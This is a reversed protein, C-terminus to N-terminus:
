WPWERVGRFVCRYGISSRREGPERGFRASFRLQRPYSDGPCGRVSRYKGSTPGAPNERSLDKFYTESFWDSCWEATRGPMDFVGFDNAGFTGVDAATLMLSNLDRVGALNLKEGKIIDISGKFYAGDEIVIRGVRLDGVLKADKLIIAVTAEVNGQVRGRIEIVDAALNGKVERGRPIVVAHGPLRLEGNGIPLLAEEGLVVKSALQAPLVLSKLGSRAVYEWEAETPLGGGLWECYEQAEGWSLNVMPQSTVKWNPNFNPPPPLGRPQKSSTRSFYAGVTILTRSIWFGETIRVLHRPREAPSALDDSPDAGMFFEGARVWVYETGDVPCIRVENQGDSHVPSTFSSRSPGGDKQRTPAKRTPPPQGAEDPTSTPASSKGASGISDLLRSVAQHFGVDPIEFAQRRSLSTLEEPLDSARPMRAGGVLLPVIRIKKNLAACIELRVFDEAKMLRSQGDEDKASIWHRGIVALLVDCSAVKEQLVEVFDDGPTITDIDMFVESAGFHSSLRDYLRGAYAISDERRYCIFVRAMHAGSGGLDAQKLFLLQISKALAFNTNGGIAIVLPEFSAGGGFRGAASAPMPRAM